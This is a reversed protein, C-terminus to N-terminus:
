KLLKKYDELSIKNGKIEVKKNIKVNHPIPMNKANIHNIAIAIADAADDPKPIEKLKLLIKVMEQVQQKTARGYGTVGTKVQLPTYEFIELANIQSALLLVGRAQAVTIITKQNKFYFLTEIAVEDPQWLKILKNISDYIQELRKATSDSKDTYICGYDLLSMKSGKYQLISYGIIATGPDIGLVIM